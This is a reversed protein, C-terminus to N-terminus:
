RIRPSSGGADLLRAAAPLAGPDGAPWGLPDPGLEALQEVQMRCWPSVDRGALVDGAFGAWPVWEVDEVEGPNAVPASSTVARFVPCLENEAIGDPMVARYRFAPLLLTLGAVALGLEDTLRRTVAHEVPEGPAPHGCCTNTWVGPWTKKGLARRSLLLRGGPDFVYCSLALHLPTTATHVTAKPVHGLAHGDEDVLIVLEETMVVALWAVTAPVRDLLSNM